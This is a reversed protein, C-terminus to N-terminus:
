FYLELARRSFKDLALLTDVLTQDSCNRDDLFVWLGHNPKWIVSYEADNDKINERMFMGFEANRSSYDGYDKYVHFDIDRGRFFSKIDDIFDETAMQTDEGECVKRYADVLDIPHFHLILNKEVRSTRDRSHYIWHPRYESSPKKYFQGYWIIKGDEEMVVPVESIAALSEKNTRTATCSMALLGSGDSGDETSLLFSHSVTVEVTSCLVYKCIKSVGNLILLQSAVFSEYNDKYTLLNRPLLLAKPIDPVQEAHKARKRTVGTDKEFPYNGLLHQCEGLTSISCGSFLINGSLKRPPKVNSDLVRGIAGFIFEYEDRTAETQLLAELLRLCNINKSYSDLEPLEIHWNIRFSWKEPDGYKPNDAIDKFLKKIRNLPVTETSIRWNYKHVIKNYSRVWPPNNSSLLGRKILKNLAPFVVHIDGWPNDSSLPIFTPSFGTQEKVTDYPVSPDKLLLANIFKNSNHEYWLKMEQWIGASENTLLFIAVDGRKVMDEMMSDPDSYKVVEDQGWIIECQYLNKIVQVLPEWVERRRGSYSIFIHLKYDGNM